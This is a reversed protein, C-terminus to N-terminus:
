DANQKGEMPESPIDAVPVDIHLTINAKDLEDDLLMSQDIEIEVEPLDALDIDVFAKKFGTITARGRLRCIATGKVTYVKMM